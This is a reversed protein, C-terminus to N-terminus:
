LVGRHAVSVRDLVGGDVVECIGGVVELKARASLVVSLDRVFAELVRGHAVSVGHLVGGDVVELATGSRGIHVLGGTCLGDYWVTVAGVDIEGCSEEDSITYHNEHELLEIIM